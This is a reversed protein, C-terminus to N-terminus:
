RDPAQRIGHCRQLLICDRADQIPRKMTYISQSSTNVLEGYERISGPILSIVLVPNDCRGCVSTEIVALAGHTLSWSIWVLDGDYLVNGYIDLAQQM